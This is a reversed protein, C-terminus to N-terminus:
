SEWLQISIKFELWNTNARILNWIQVSENAYKGFLDFGCWINEAWKTNLILCIPNEMNLFRGNIVFIFSFFLLFFMNSKWGGKKLWGEKQINNVTSMESDFRFYLYRKIVSSLFWNEGRYWKWKAFYLTM